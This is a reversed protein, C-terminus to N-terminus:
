PPLAHNGLGSHTFLGRLEMFANGSVAQLLEPSPSLATVTWSSISICRLGIGLAEGFALGDVFDPVVDRSAECRMAVTPSDLCVSVSISLAPVESGTDRPDGFLRIQIVCSLLCSHPLLPVNDLCRM